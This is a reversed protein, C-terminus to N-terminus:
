AFQNRHALGYTYTEDFFARLNEVPNDPTIGNGATIMCGGDARDYTDIMFRVEQRVEEPTGWPLIQQVDM